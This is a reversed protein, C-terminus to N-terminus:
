QNDCRSHLYSVQSMLNSREEKKTARKDLMRQTPESVVANQEKHDQAQALRADVQQMEETDGSSETTHSM